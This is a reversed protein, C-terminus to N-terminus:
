MKLRYTTNGQPCALVTDVGAMLVATAQPTMNELAISVICVSPIPICHYSIFVALIVLLLLSVLSFSDLNNVLRKILMGKRDLSKLM